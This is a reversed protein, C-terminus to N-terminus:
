KGAAQTMAVLLLVPGAALVGGWATMAADSWDPTRDITFLSQRLEELFGVAMAAQVSVAFGILESESVLGAVLGALLGICFGAHAHGLHDERLSLFPRFKM